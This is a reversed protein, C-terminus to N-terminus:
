ETGDAFLSSFLLQNSSNINIGLTGASFTATGLGVLVVRSVSNKLKDAMISLLVGSISFMAIFAPGALVQYEYGMGSYTWTCLSNNKCTEEDKIATCNNDLNDETM